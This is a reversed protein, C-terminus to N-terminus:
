NFFHCIVSKSPLPTPPSRYVGVGSDLLDTTQLKNLEFPNVKKAKAGEHLEQGRQASAVVARQSGGLALFFQSFSDNKQRRRKEESKLLRQHKRLTKNPGAGRKTLTEYIILL